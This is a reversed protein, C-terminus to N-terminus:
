GRREAWMHGVARKVAAQCVDAVVRGSTCASLSKDGSNWGTTSCSIPKRGSSLYFPQITSTASGCALLGPHAGSFVEDYWQEHVPLDHEVRRGEGHGHLGELLLEEPLRSPCHRPPTVVAVTQPDPGHALLSCMPRNEGRENCTHLFGYM